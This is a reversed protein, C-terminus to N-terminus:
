YCYGSVSFVFQILNRLDLKLGLVCSVLEVPGSYDRPEGEPMWSWQKETQETQTSLEPDWVRLIRLNAFLLLVM